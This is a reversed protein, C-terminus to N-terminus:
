SKARRCTQSVFYLQWTGVRSHIVTRRNSTAAIPRKCIERKFQHKQENTKIPKLRLIHADTRFWTDRSELSSPATDRSLGIAVFTITQMNLGTYQGNTYSIPEYPCEVIIVVVVRDRHRRRCCTKYAQSICYWGRAKVGQVQEIAMLADNSKFDLKGNLMLINVRPEYQM